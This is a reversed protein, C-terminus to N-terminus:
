PYRVEYNHLVCTQIIELNEMYSPIRNKHQESLQLYSVKSMQIRKQCHLKYYKFSNIVRAFHEREEREEQEQIQLALTQQDVIGSDTM